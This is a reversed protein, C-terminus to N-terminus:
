KEGRAKALVDKIRMRELSSGDDDLRKLEEFARELVDYMEAAAAILRANAEHEYVTCIEQSTDRLEQVWHKYNDSKVGIKFVERPRHSGDLHAGMGDDFKRINWPGPTFKPQSM